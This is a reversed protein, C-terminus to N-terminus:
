LKFPPSLVTIATYSFIPPVSGTLGFGVSDVSDVSEVSDASEVSEVDADPEACDVFSLPQPPEKPPVLAASAANPM